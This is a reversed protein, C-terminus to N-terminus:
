MRGQWTRPKRRGHFIAVVIITNGRYRFFISYPFRRTVARRVDGTILPFVLPSDAVRDITAQVAHLFEDGLGTRQQEYWSAAELFEARAVRRFVVRPTM